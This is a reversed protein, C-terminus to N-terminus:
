VDFRPLPEPRDQPSDPQWPVDERWKVDGLSLKQAFEYLVSDLEDGSHFGVMRRETKTGFELTARCVLFIKGDNGRQSVQISRVLTGGKKAEGPRLTRLTDLMNVAYEVKMPIRKAEYEDFAGVDAARSLAEREYPDM